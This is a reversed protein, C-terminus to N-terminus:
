RMLAWALWGGVHLVVIAWYVILFRLKRTKHRFVRQGIFGGIFGGLLTLVQLTAERTRWRGRAAARKDLGYAIFTVVSLILYILLIYKM